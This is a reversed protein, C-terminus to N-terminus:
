PKLVVERILSNKNLFLAVPNLFAHWGIPQPLSGPSTFASLPRVDSVFLVPRAYWQHAIRETVTSESM